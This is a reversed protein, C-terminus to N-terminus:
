CYHEVVGGLYNYSSTEQDRLPREARFPNKFLTDEANSNPMVRESGRRNSGGNGDFNTLSRWPLSLTHSVNILKEAPLTRAEELSLTKGYANARLYLLYKGVSLGRAEAAKKRELSANLWETGAAKWYSLRSAGTNFANVLNQAFMSQRPRSIQDTLITTILCYPRKNSMQQKNVNAFLASSLEQFSMGPALPTEKLWQKAEANLPQVSIVRLNRDVSAEISAKLDFYVYAAVPGSPADTSHSLPVFCLLSFGLAIVPTLIRKPLFHFHALHKARVTQGISLNAARKLRVSRFDGENTLIVARRGKKSVLVGQNIM